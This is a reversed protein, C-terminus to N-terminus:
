ETQSREGTATPDVIGKWGNARAIDDAIRVVELADRNDSLDPAEGNMMEFSIRALRLMEDKRKLGTAADESSVWDSVAPHNPRRVTSYVTYDGAAYLRRSSQMLAEHLNRREGPSVDAGETDGTAAVDFEFWRRVGGEVVAPVYVKGDYNIALDPRVEVSRKMAFQQRLTKENWQELADVFRKIVFESAQSKSFPAAGYWAEFPMVHVQKRAPGPRWNGGLQDIFVPVGQQMLAEDFARSGAQSVLAEQDFDSTVDIPGSEVLMQAFRYNFLANFQDRQRRNLRFDNPEIEMVGKGYVNVMGAFEGPHIPKITYEKAGPSAKVGDINQQAQELMTADVGDFFKIRSEIEARREAPPMLPRDEVAAVAYYSTRMLTNGARAIREAEEPRRSRLARLARLGGDVDRFQEGFADNLDSEWATPLNLGIRTAATVTDALTWGDRRKLRYWENIDSESQTLDEAPVNGVYYAQDILAVAEAQQERETKATNLAKAAAAFTEEMEATPPAVLRLADLRADDGPRGLLVLQAVTEQLINTLVDRTDAEMTGGFPGRVKAGDTVEISHMLVDLAASLETASPVDPPNEPDSGILRDHMVNRTVQYLNNAFQQKKEKISREARERIARAAPDSIRGSITEDDLLALATEPSSEALANLHANTFREAAEQELRGATAETIIGDQYPRLAAAYDEIADDLGMRGTRVQGEVTGIFGSLAVEVNIATQRAATRKVSARGRVEQRDLYASAGNRVYDDQVAAIKERVEALKADFVADSEIPDAQQAALEADAVAELSRTQWANIQRAQNARLKKLGVAATADGLIQMAEAFGEDGSAVQPLPFNYGGGRIRADPVGGGRVINADFRSM